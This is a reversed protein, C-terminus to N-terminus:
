KKGLLKKVFSHDHIESILFVILMIVSIIFVADVSDRGQKAWYVDKLFLWLAFEDIALAAGIGFLVSVFLRIRTHSWFSIGIYGSILVLLIGPVMHHIHLVGNQNPIIGARQLHTEVRIITFSFLFSVLILFQSLRNRGKSNATESQFFPIKM